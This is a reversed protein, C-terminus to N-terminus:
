KAKGHHYSSVIIPKYLSRFLEVEELTFYLRHAQMPVPKLHGRKYHMYIANRSSQTLKAIEELTFLQEQKLQLM